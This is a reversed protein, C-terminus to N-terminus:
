FGPLRIINGAIIGLLSVSFILFLLGVIASTFLEKGKQLQEANGGATMIQLTAILMTVLAVAGAIGVIFTLLASIFANRNYPICGLATKLYGDGCTEPFFGTFKFGPQNPPNSPNGGPQTGNGGGPTPDSPVYPGVQPWAILEKGPAIINYIGKLADIYIAVNAVEEPTIENYCHGFWFKAIFNNMDKGCYQYATPLALFGVIQATFNEALDPVNYGFDQIKIGHHYQEGCIYNSAGSEHIWIALTFLPDVGSAVARKITDNHCQMWQSNGVCGEFLADTYRKGDAVSLGPVNQEPVTQDCNIEGSAVVGSEDFCGIRTGLAYAEISTQTQASFINDSCPYLGVSRLAIQPGTRKGYPLYDANDDIINSLSLNFDSVSELETATDRTDYVPQQLDEISQAMLDPVVILHHKVSLADDIVGWILSLVTKQPNPSRAGAVEKSVDPMLQYDPCTQNPGLFNGSDLYDIHTGFSGWSNWPIYDICPSAGVKALKEKIRTPTAEPASSTLFMVIPNKAVIQVYLKIGESLTHTIFLDDLAAGFTQSISLDHNLTRPNGSIDIKCRASPCCIDRVCISGREYGQRYSPSYMPVTELDVLWSPKPSQTSAKSVADCVYNKASSIDSVAGLNGGNLYFDDTGEIINKMRGAIDGPLENYIDLLTKTMNEDKYGWDVWGLPWEGTQALTAKTQKARSVVLLKHIAIKCTDSSLYLSGWTISNDTGMYSYANSESQIKPFTLNQVISFDTGKIEHSIKPVTTYDCTGEITESTGAVIDKPLKCATHGSTHTGAPTYNPPDVHCMDIEGGDCSDGQNNCYYDRRDAGAGPCVDLEDYTRSREMAEFIQLASPKIYRFLNFIPGFYYDEPPNGEVSFPAFPPTSVAYVPSSTFHCLLVTTIIFILSKKMSNLALISSLSM